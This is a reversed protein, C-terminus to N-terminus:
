REREVRVWDAFFSEIQRRRDFNSSCSYVQEPLKHQHERAVLKLFDLGELGAALDNDLVWVSFPANCMIVDLANAHDAVIADGDHRFPRVLLCTAFDAPVMAPRCQQLATSINRVDDYVFLSSM